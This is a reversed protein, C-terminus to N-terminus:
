TSYINRINSMLERKGLHISEHYSPSVPSAGDQSLVSPGWNRKCLLSIDLGPAKQVGQGLISHEAEPSEIARVRDKHRAFKAEEALTPM